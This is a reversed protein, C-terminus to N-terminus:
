AEDHWRVSAASGLSAEVAVVAAALSAHGGGGSTFVSRQTTSGYEVYFTPVAVDERLDRPDEYDGTGFRVASQLIRVECEVSGGYLFTGRKVVIAASDM